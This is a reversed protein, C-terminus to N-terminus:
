RKSSINIQGLILKPLLMDRQQKLNRNKASLLGIQKISPDVVNNFEELIGDKPM